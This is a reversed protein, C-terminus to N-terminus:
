VEAILERFQQLQVIYLIEDHTQFAGIHLGSYHIMNRTLASRVMKHSQRPQGQSKYRGDEVTTHQIAERMVTGHSSYNAIYEWADQPVFVFDNQVGHYHIILIGFRARMAIAERRLKTLWSYQFLMQPEGQKTTGASLKCEIIYFGHSLPVRVDGKYRALSGSLPVREGTLYKAVRLEMAAARRRNTNNIERQTRKVTAKTTAVLLGRNKTKQEHIRAYKEKDRELPDPNKAYKRNFARKKLLPDKKKPM